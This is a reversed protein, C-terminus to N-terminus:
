RLPEIFPGRADAGPENEDNTTTQCPNELGVTELTGNSVFKNPAAGSGNIRKQLAAGPQAAELVIRLMAQCMPPQHLM